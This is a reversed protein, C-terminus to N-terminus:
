IGLVVDTLDIGFVYKGALIALVAILRKIWKIDTKVEVFGELINDVREYMRTM